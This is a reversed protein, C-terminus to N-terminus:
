WPPCGAEPEKTEPLIRTGAKEPEVISRVQMPIDADVLPRLTKPHMGLDGSETMAFAEEMSLHDLREANAHAEPDDTYLGDVDTYRTVCEAELIRAFLSASYDSGEFGLTTTHGGATGGIFGAVIPVAGGSLGRYWQRVRETTAVRDVNAEGFTDDTVVLQTADCHPATLGADRLALAVMPVSLQEGTALVADRAAPTFGFREVEAFRQQLAHLHENLLATYEDAREPSLVAEAQSQHRDRLTHLLDEVVATGDSRTAFAEMARSLQRSVQSLASVIAVVRDAAAAERLLSIVTRFREPEGVTTGGFKFVVRPSSITESRNSM